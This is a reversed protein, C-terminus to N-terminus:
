CADIRSPAPVRGNRIVYMYDGALGEEVVATGKSYRREILQSSIDELDADSVSEFLPIARLYSLVDKSEQPDDSM